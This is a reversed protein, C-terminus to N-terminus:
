DSKLRLRESMGQIKGEQLLPLYRNPISLVFCGVATGYLRGPENSIWKTNQWYGDPHQLRVLSDRVQPYNRSWAVGGRQYIAQSVYYLTYADGLPYDRGPRNADTTLTQVAQQIVDLNKPIRWDEYAGFEQLCVVGAAAMAITRNQGRRTYAFQGPLSRLTSEADRPLGSDKLAEENVVYHERVGQLAMHIVEPPIQLGSDVASRLAKAQMVMLSLDNGRAKRLARYDWGGDDCQTAAILKLARDLTREVRPDNTMGYVQGLVFTSLGHNYMDRQSESINLLGTEANANRLVYDLAREVVQGYAGRGPMHGDSMFALVGLSVLGLDKSGWNGNPGQNEALWQLGRRLARESEPTVELEGSIGQAVAQSLSADVVCIALILLGTRSVCRQWILLFCKKIILYFTELSM